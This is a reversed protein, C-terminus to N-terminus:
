KTGRHPWCEELPLLTSHGPCVTLFYDLLVVLQVILAQRALLTEKFCTFEVFLFDLKTPALSTSEVGLGKAVHLM